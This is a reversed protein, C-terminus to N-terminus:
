RSKVPVDAFLDTLATETARGFMKLRLMERGALCKVSVGSFFLGPTEAFVFTRTIDHSCMGEEQLKTWRSAM